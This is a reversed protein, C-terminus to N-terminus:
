PTAEIFWMEMHLRKFHGSLGEEKYGAKVIDWPAEALSKPQLELFKRPGEAEQLSRCLLGGATICRFSTVESKDLPKWREAKPLGSRNTAM